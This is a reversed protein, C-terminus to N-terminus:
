TDEGLGEICREEGEYKCSSRGMENKKIQDGSYNPLSYQEHLQEMGRDGRGQPGVVMRLVRNKM